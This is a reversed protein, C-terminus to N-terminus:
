HQKQTRPLGGSSIQEIMQLNQSFITQSLTQKLDSRKALGNLSPDKNYEKSLKHLRKLVVRIQPHHRTLEKRNNYEDISYSLAEYLYDYYEDLPDVQSHGKRQIKKLGIKQPEAEVQNHEIQTESIILIQKTEPDTQTQKDHLSPDANYKKCFERTQSKDICKVNTDVSANKFSVTM